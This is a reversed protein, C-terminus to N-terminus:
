FPTEFNTSDFEPGNSETDFSNMKSQVIYNSNTGTGEEFSNDVSLMNEPSTTESYDHLNEFVTFEGIFKLRVVGLEGNRHKEIMLEAIGLNSEGNENQLLKYYEPRYLFSVIDADQEISGSERLDSLIPRKEGGRSEVSRSLQSLAIVPINLEKAVEKITRSILSIEQERNGNGKQTGGSMLQLYDIIIIEINKTSKLRRCKARFDFVNIGPTDDIYIPADILKQIRSHLQQVEDDRLNGKMLKKGEIRTESSILRKVLQISSMELSFYAVGMNFDVAMNRAMSLVLATKGMAPRAALIIMDSRQWGATIKDLERFGSPVGSIGDKNNRAKEIELVAKHVTDRMEDANKKINKSTIEFLNSEVKNILEFIDAGEEFAESIMEASFRIIERQIFKQSVIRAHYEVNATSAIRSTLTSIYAAGGAIELENKSKLQNTVTLLDIPKSEKFLDFIAKFIFHHKTDYFSDVNLIVVIENIVNKNLMIAGLVARELEIAQPPLRGFDTIKVGKQSRVQSSARRVQEPNKEM